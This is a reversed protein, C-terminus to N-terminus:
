LRFLYSIKAFFGDQQREKPGIEFGFPGEQLQSYGLFVITGPSPEYSVLAQAQFSGRDRADQLVGDILVARGTVPHRLATREEMDYQGILRAFLSRGFQYQVKLRPLHVSSFRSGDARRWIRSWAYSADVQLAETAQVQLGPSIQTEWGLSGETFIPVERFFSRLNLQFRDDLRVNPFLAIGLMGNLTPPLPFDQVEGGEGAVQYRAFDEPQFRFAGVRLVAFGSHSGRVAVSPWLEIEWDDPSGGSWFDDHDFFTNTRLELGFREILAGAGGYVDFGVVGSTQTDGVRPIFGSLTRFGPDIDEFRASYHFNRGGRVFNLTLAPKVGSSAGSSAGGTWSGTLQAEITYRGFLLRTDGSLVRNYGEGGTLTRDTYLFGLSSGSSGLDRRARAFNFVADQSGGFISSPSQDVSGLYAVSFKGIKGTLKAGAIPDVVQRTHVLRQTSQFIEAGELFFLRREPFFLAFRENVQVQDVDAEVQSFDPNVTADLVLNPTLGIRANAGVDPDPDQRDFAGDVRHGDMRGTVVPNLEVLRRPELGRLGVLRGSQSLVNSANVTLPAWSSKFSTRTIGRAIQLGWSQVETDPFRLSVYPIRIEAVWGDSVIRGRSDWIFDPNFDVKPGTPGGLPELSELWTGDTQIGYPNVFFAYAQQQDDFTDLMIRVWDDVRTSQDRETLHVLIDGPNSDFVHFGFYIADPSYFVRVETDESAAVGELPTYQTFGTLIVARDWEPEDLRADIEISPSEIRVPEVALEGDRGSYRREDPDPTPAPEAAAVQLSLILPLTLANLSLV